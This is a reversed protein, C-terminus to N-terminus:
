LVKNIGYKTPMGETFTEASNYVGDKNIDYLTADTFKSVDTRIEPRWNKSQYRKTEWEIECTVQGTVYLTLYSDQNATTPVPIKAVRVYITGPPHSMPLTGDASDLITHFETRPIKTWIPFDRNIPPGDWVQNPYMWWNELEGSNDYDCYNIRAHRAMSIDAGRSSAKTETESEVTSDYNLQRIELNSNAGHTPAVSYSSYQMATDSPMTIGTDKFTTGDTADVPITRPPMYAVTIPGREISNVGGKDPDKTTGTYKMSPGPLWASPKRYPDYRQVKFKNAEKIAYYRRTNVLPNFDAQPPAYARENRVWGCDFSFNFEADEGTRLVEHSASELIFLPTDKMLQANMDNPDKQAAETRATLMQNFQFYAYQPLKWIKYPLEPMTETDWPHQSYPFQHSGDCFIHMGATLDNNYTKDDVGVGVKVEQKIQLNYIKVKMRVPKWAVYENVLRQWDHPSFHANYCNFNFYGWPTQMGQWKGYKSQGTEKASIKSYKHGNYIPAFWQRTNRTIVKDHFFLTGNTWGGTSIGVGAGGVGGVTGSSGSSAVNPTNEGGDPQDSPVDMKAKKEGRLLRQFYLKRKAARDQKQQAAQQKALELRAKKSTSPVENGTPATEKLHPFLVRKLKFASSGLVGGFSWDDKLDNIFTEDAKNFNLYPNVGNKIYDDYAYDHDRAAADAKNVPDGNPLPNFPGLYNYGPLVWGRSTRNTPSM